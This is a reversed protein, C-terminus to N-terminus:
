RPSAHSGGDPVFRANTPRVDLSEPPCVVLHRDPDHLGDFPLRGRDAHLATEVGLRHGIQLVLAPRHRESPPRASSREPKTYASASPSSTSRSNLSRPISNRPMEGNM